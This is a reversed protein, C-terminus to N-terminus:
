HKLAPNFCFSAGVNARTPCSQLGRSYLLVISKCYLYLLLCSANGPGDTRFIKLKLLVSWLVNRRCSCIIWQSTVATGHGASAGPGELLVSAGAPGAPLRCPRRLGPVRRLVGWDFIFIKATPENGLRAWSWPVYGSNFYIDLHIFLSHLYMDVPYTEKDLLM